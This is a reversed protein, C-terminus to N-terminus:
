KCAGGSYAGGTESKAWIEIHFRQEVWDSSSESIDLHELKLWFCKLSMIVPLTLTFIEVSNTKLMLVLKRLSHVLSWTYFDQIKTM